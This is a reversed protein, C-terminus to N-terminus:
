RDEEIKAFSWKQDFLIKIAPAVLHRDSPGFWGLESVEAKPSIEGNWRASFCNLEVIDDRGYAPGTVTRQLEISGRDIVVGLEESIERVLADELAEDAELTGGPLYWLENQRVRVLLIRQEREALLCACRIM